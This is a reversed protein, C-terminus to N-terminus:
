RAGRRTSGVERDRRQRLSRATIGVEWKAPQPSPAVLTAADQAFAICAGRPQRTLNPCGLPQPTPKTPKLTHFPQANHLHTSACLHSLTSPLSLLLSSPPCRSDINQFHPEISLSATRAHHQCAFRTVFTQTLMLLCEPSSFTM